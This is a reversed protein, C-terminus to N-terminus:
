IAVSIAPTENRGAVRELRAISAVGDSIRAASAFLPTRTSKREDPSFFAIGGGAPEMSHSKLAAGSLIGSSASGTSLLLGRTNNQRDPPRLLRAFGISSAAPKVMTSLPPPVPVGSCHATTLAVNSRCHLSLLPLPPSVIQVEHCSAGGVGGGGEAAGNALLNAFADGARM